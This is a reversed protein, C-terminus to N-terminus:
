SGAPRRFVTEQYDLFADVQRAREHAPWDLVAGVIESAREVEERELSRRWAAGTRRFLVDVLSQAMEKSASLEIDAERIEPEDAMFPPSNESQTFQYPSFSLPVKEGSPKLKPTIADVLWRGTERHTMIPGSTVAFVGPLGRAELDHMKPERAGLPGDNGLPRVGSWTRLVDAHKLNLGPLVYNAEGLLFDIDEDSTEIDRADGHFATETVGISFLDKHLPLVYFPLGIRNLTAVGFGRYTEPLRVILHAGKTAQILKPEVNHSEIVDDSWSGALNLVIPARVQAPSAEPASAKSLEVLWQGDDQRQGIKAACYNQLVAGNAQAKLVLDVCFREPWDFKYEAYTFLARLNEPDRFDGAFPITQAFDKTAVKYDLSFSGDGVLGLLKMGMQLHWPKTSSGKYIPFCMRFPWVRDGSDSAIEGVARMAQGAGRLAKIFRGPNLGFERIPNPTEFYRLGNHLMRSSRGTAGSAFDGKDVVLCRYGEAQLHHACSAGNIGAGIVIVDFSQGDLHQFAQAM